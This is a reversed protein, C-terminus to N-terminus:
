FVNYHQECRSSKKSLLVFLVHVDGNKRKCLRSEVDRYYDVCCSGNNQLSTHRFFDFNDIEDNLYAFNVLVYM